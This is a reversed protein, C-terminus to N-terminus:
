NKGRGQPVGPLSHKVSFGLEAAIRKLHQSRFVKANDAYFISPLHHKLIAKMLTDEICPRNEHFYFEAHVIVRTYADIIAVLRLRRKKGTAEDYLYPGDWVDCIWLVHAGDVSLLRYRKKVVRKLSPRDKALRRLHRNLTGVNMQEAGPIGASRLEEIISDASLEPRAERVKVAEDLAEQPFAKLSGQEPRVQPKLGDLGLKLYNSLYREITRKGLTILRGDSMM